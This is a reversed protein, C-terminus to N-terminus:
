STIEPGAPVIGSPNLNRLSTWYHSKIQDFKVTDGIGDIAFLRARLASLNPYDSIKRINCKFLSAYVHDFRILTTFLRWDAETIQDGVLYARGELRAEIQDLADFLEGVAEDYAAQTGAFGCRYVGNNVKRYTLDNVADIEALLEDPAFDRDNGAIGVFASNLIRMIEASENSVITGLKKDWLVPVSVRRSYSPDAATYIEHLRRKGMLHDPFDDAFEWGEDQVLPSVASVSVAEELGKLSRMILTRHAWPCAYCIYLHYRGTEPAFKADPETSIWNRFASEQRQFRGDTTKPVDGERTWIGDILKGAM